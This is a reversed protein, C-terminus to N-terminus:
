SKVSLLYQHIAQKANGYYVMEGADLYLCTKCIALIRDPAHSVFLLTKGNKKLQTFFGHCKKQFQIDGVAFVEDILYIDSEQQIAISFGLRMAMGSSFNRLNTDVFRELGAFSIISNFQRELTRRSMGLATGFLFVNDKASLEPNFGSSLDLITSISGVVTVKGSTPRMIGAIIKLLTSKGSGNKGIVGVFEGPQITVSINNLAYFDEYERRRRIFDIVTHKLGTQRDHPIVFKKSVDHLTIMM